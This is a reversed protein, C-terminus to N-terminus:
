FDDFYDNSCVYDEDTGWGASALVDADAEVSDRFGDDYEPGNMEDAAEQVWSVPVNLIEAIQAVTLAEDALYEQITLVLDSMRSM